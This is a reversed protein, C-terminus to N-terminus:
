FMTTQVDPFIGAQVCGTDALLRAKEKAKALQRKLDKILETKFAQTEDSYYTERNRREETEIRLTLNTIKEREAQLAVVLEAKSLQATLSLFAHTQSPKPQRKKMPMPLNMPM